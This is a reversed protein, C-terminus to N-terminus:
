FTTLCFANMPLNHRKKYLSSGAEIAENIANRREVAINKLAVM